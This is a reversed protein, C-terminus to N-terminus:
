SIGPDLRCGPLCDLMGFAVFIVAWEPSCRLLAPTERALGPCGNAELCLARTCRFRENLGVEKVLLVADFGNLAMSAYMLSSSVAAEPGQDAVPWPPRSNSSASGSISSGGRTSANASLGRELLAPPPPTYECSDSM